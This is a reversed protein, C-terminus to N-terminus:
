PKRVVVTTGGGDGDADHNLDPRYSATDSVSTVSFSVSPNSRAIGSLSVSCRGSTGTVCSAVMGNAWSGSPHIVALGLPYRPSSEDQACGQCEEYGHVVYALTGAGQGRAPETVCMLMAASLGVIPLLRGPTPLNELM